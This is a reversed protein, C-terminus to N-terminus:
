FCFTQATEPSLSSEVEVGTYLTVLNIDHGAARSGQNVCPFFNYTEHSVSTMSAPVYCFTLMGPPLRTCATEQLKVALLGIQSFLCLFM